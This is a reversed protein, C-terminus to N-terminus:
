PTAPHLVDFRLWSTPGDVLPHRSRQVWLLPAGDTTRGLVFRRELALGQNPLATPRLTHGRGLPAGPAGGILTSAPGARPPPPEGALRAPHGLDAVLGQTYVRGGDAAEIRYPHWHPPLTTSPLYDYGHAPGSSGLAQVQGRARLSDADPLLRHGDVVLEVAWALDTDEDVALVVRDLVPGVVPTAVTPWVVLAGAPLDTSHFLSWSPPPPALAWPADDMDDHVEARLLEVVHGTTPPPEGGPDPEGGAVAPDPVPFTFWDDGHGTLLELLLVTALHARDPGEAAWDVRHDEIQWWRPHPAGPWSLRSALVRATTSSGEGLPRSDGDVSYWDLPGGDHGDLTLATGVGVPFDDSYTLSAPDWRDGAAPAPVEDFAPDGGALGARWVALGDVANRNVLDYPAPLRGIRCARREAASLRARVARGLRLRRGVTWWSDAEAELIAEPPVRVPDGGAQGVPVRRAEVQVVVPTSADEGHQEGLQWQRALFWVPDAVRASVGEQFDVNPRQPELRTYCEWWRGPPM